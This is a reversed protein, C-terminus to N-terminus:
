EAASQKETLHNGAMAGINEVLANIKDGAAEMGGGVLNMLM